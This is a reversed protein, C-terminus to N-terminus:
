DRMLIDRPASYFERSLLLYLVAVTALFLAVAGFLWGLAGLAFYMSRLGRTFNISARINLDAARLAARRGGEAGPAGLSGMVVACYGFLRHSWVFKLFATTLFFGVLILKIQWVFVPADEAILEVAVGRLPDVNGILAMLGGIALISTSAFFSTGQRLTGIIQADFIRNERRECAAMWSRRYDAMMSSVSPWGSPPHEISYGAAAWALLIFVAAIGDGFSLLALHEWVTM